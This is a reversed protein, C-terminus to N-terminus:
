FLVRTAYRLLVEKAARAAPGRWAGLNNLAYLIQDQVAREGKPMVLPVAEIYTRAFRLAGRIPFRVCEDHALRLADQVDQPLEKM